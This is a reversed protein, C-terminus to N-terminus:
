LAVATGLAQKIEERSSSGKGRARGVGAWDVKAEDFVVQDEDFCNVFDEVHKHFEEVGTPGELVTRIGAMFADLVSINHMVLLSHASMEHTHLLHHIYSRTFPPQFNSPQAPSSDAAFSYHDVTSHHLYAPAGITPSCTPCPCILSAPTSSNGTLAQSSLADRYNAALRSHDRAYRIDYLNHGLDAKGNPRVRPGVCKQIATPSGNLTPFYFDLAVGIDAASQAWHADIMDIGVDRILRLMEHPSNASNVLRPKTVPLHKLSAQILDSLEPTDHQQQANPAIVSMAGRELGPLIESTSIMKASLAARLPMLDFVYGAVGDDLTRLPALQEADRNDLKELLSNAFAQRAQITVSGAMHVLVNRVNPVSIDPCQHESVGQALVQQSQAQLIDTLWASSKEISKTIRKQSHPPPTFPTDSLATVVDPNCASTYSNWMNPTIKRVGRICYVSIFDKGNAPMDRGDFPDRASMSVIHQSPDYGLFRHIPHPGPQLTPIPPTHSLFSEFPVHVWRIAKTVNVHDRSLHPIVGHSTATMLNPTSIELHASGDQRHLAIQGLRPGFTPLDALAIPSFTLSPPLEAQFSTEVM